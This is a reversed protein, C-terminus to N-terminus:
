ASAALRARVWQVGHYIALPPSALAAALPLAFVYGDEFLVVTLAMGALAFLVSVLALPGHYAAREAPDRSLARRKLTQQERAIANGLGEAKLQAVEQGIPTFGARARLPLLLLAWVIVALLVGLVYGLLALLASGGEWLGRLGAAMPRGLAYGGVLALPLTAIAILQYLRKSM